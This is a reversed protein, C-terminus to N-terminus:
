RDALGVLDGHEFGASQGGNAAVVVEDRLVAEVGAQAALLGQHSWRHRHRVHPPLRALSTLIRHVGNSMNMPISGAIM